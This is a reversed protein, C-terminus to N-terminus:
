LRWRKVLFLTTLIGPWSTRLLAVFAMPALHAGIGIRQNIMNGPVAGTAARDQRSINLNQRAFILPDLQRFDPGMNLAM